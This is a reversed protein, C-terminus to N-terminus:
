FKHAAERNFATRVNSISVVGQAFKPSSSRGPEFGGCDSSKPRAHQRVQPGSSEARVSTEGADVIETVRPLIRPVQRSKDFTEAIGIANEYHMRPIVLFPPPLLKPGQARELKRRARRITEARCEQSLASSM